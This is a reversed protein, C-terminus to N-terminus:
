SINIIHQSYIFTPFTKKKEDFEFPLLLIALPLWDILLLWSSNILRDIAGVQSDISNLDILPPFTYSSLVVIILIIITISCLFEYAFKVRDHTRTHRKIKITSSSNIVQHSNLITILIIGDDENKMPCENKQQKKRLEIMRMMMMTIM